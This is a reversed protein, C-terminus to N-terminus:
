KENGRNENYNKYLDQWVPSIIERFPEKEARPIFNGRNSDYSKFNVCFKCFESFQKKVNEKSLESLSHYGKKGGLIRDIGGCVACGYYGNKNLGLGCYQAVWCAKSYDADKFKSDDCPADNFATFYEVKNNKKYSNRDIEVNQYLNEAKDCMNRSQETLGNSVVKIKVDHNYVDAYEKQIIGIIENFDPHLTPEGGLISIVKWKIGNEISDQVFKRIDQVSMKEKSPAEGCSRNCGKCNLNCEFTIDIEICKMDPFFDIRGKVVNEQSLKQKSLISGICENKLERDMDRKDYDREYYYNIFDMQYPSKSMEVIPIMMAFDDCKEYWSRESIKSLFSEKLFYNLPISTFLYKKFTKTHQWVNGGRERPNLFDVPYRYEPQIRYTQHVRGCTCDVGWMEYKKQIDLLANQGILADDTDVCVIISEPNTCINHLILYECQLKPLWNRGKIYTIRDKYPEIIKQILISTGNDSYDDYLVLSFKQYSQNMLSCWFRLFRDPSINRFCSIIIMEENRKPGCWDYFSGECDFHNLQCEPLQNQEVRDLINMWSYVRTKRYNQPHVFFTRNDGGRISCFGTNKQHQEMSRYWTLKLRGNEDLENPLPRLAFFRKKDFLGMRVEPVFGGNEFGFYPKSEANNINFGVSIVSPNKEIESIMDELFNHNIDKRCIMVDSDMQFIYDGNCQEFAYLQSAVPVNKSSHTQTTSLNFWDKNVKEAFLDDFFIIRDIVKEKQLRLLIEKVREYDSNATYQRLFDKKKSDLSVLIEFFRKPCCLQRVIHKINQEITEVDMACTKILLSIKSRYEKIKRYGILIKEPVFTNNESLSIKGLQIDSLYLDEKLKSYFLRELNPLNEMNYQEYLLESKQRITIKETFEKSEQYIINAFVRNVFERLKELEPLNFNNIASRQLKKIDPHNQYNIFIYMRACVNLFLGDSYYTCADMDILKLVGNVRIFNDKKCDLILVKKQWCETLLQIGDTESFTEVKESSEYPYKEILIGEKTEILEEIKYFSKYHEPSERMFFYLHNLTGWKDGKGDFFPVIVKYVWVGDTYVIGEFGQGLFKLNTFGNNILIEYAKAKRSEDTM